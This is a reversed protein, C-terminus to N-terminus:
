SNAPSKPESRALTGPPRRHRRALACADPATTRGRQKGAQRAMSIRAGTDRGRGENGPPTGTASAAGTPPRPRNPSSASPTASPTTQRALHRDGRLGQLAQPRRPARAPAAEERDAVTAAYAYDEERTLLCWFLCALKRAAASSRSRLPRAPRPRAPLLRAIPGPQRVSRGARRSSRTAPVAGLGTESITATPRRVRLRVPARASRARPLRGAQAPERVASTASRRWSRRRARDRQRRAGSM